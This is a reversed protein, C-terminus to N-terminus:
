AHMFLSNCLARDLGHQSHRPAVLSSRQTKLPAVVGIEFPEDSDIGHPEDSDIGRPEDLDIRCPEAFLVGCRQNMSRNQGAASAKALLKQKQLLPYVRAHVHGKDTCMHVAPMAFWVIERACPLGSERERACRLGSVTKAHFVLCVRECPLGSVVRKKRLVALWVSVGRASQAYDPPPKHDPPGRWTCDRM